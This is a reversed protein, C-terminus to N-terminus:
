EYNEELFSMLEDYLVYLKQVSNELHYYHVIYPILLVLLLVAAIGILLNMTVIVLSVSAFTLIAFLMLVLLHILREHQFFLIRNLLEESYLEIEDKQILGSEKKVTLRDLRHRTRKIESRIRDYM